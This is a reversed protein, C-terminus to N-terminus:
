ALRGERSGSDKDDREPEGTNAKFSELLIIYTAHQRKDRGSEAAEWDHSPPLVPKGMDGKM